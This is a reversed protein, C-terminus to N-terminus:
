SDSALTDILGLAAVAADVPAADVPPAGADLALNTDAWAAPQVAAAVLVPADALIPADLATWRGREREAFHGYHRPCVFFRPPGYGRSRAVDVFHWGAEDGRRERPCTFCKVTSRDGRRDEV